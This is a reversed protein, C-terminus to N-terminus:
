WVFRPSNPFVETKEFASRKLLVDIATEIAKKPSRFDKYTMVPARDKLVAKAYVRLSKVNPRKVITTYMGKYLRLYWLPGGRRLDVYDLRAGDTKLVSEFAGLYQDLPGKQRYRISWDLLTLGTLSNHCRPCDWCEHNMGTSPDSKYSTLFPIKTVEIIRRCEHHRIFIRPRNGGPRNEM